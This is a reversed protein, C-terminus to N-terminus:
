DQGVHGEVERYTTGAWNGPEACGANITSTKIVKIAQLFPKLKM